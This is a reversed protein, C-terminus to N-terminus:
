SLPEPEPHPHPALEHIMRHRLTALRAVPYWVGPLVGDDAVAVLGAAVAPLSSVPLRQVLNLVVGRHAAGLHGDRAAGALSEAVVAAPSALLAELDPTVPPPDEVSRSSAVCSFRPSWDILWAALPGAADVVLEHLHRTTRHRELLPAVLEPSLRHGSTVVASLWERELSPWEAVIESWTVSCEPPTVPRLDVDPGMPVPVPARPTLGSRLVVTLAAVQQLLGASGGRVGSDAALDALVGVPPPPPRRDTGLLAAAVLEQWHAALDTTM